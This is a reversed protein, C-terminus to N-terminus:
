AATGRDNLAVHLGVWQGRRLAAILIAVTAASCVAVAIISGEAGFQGGSLTDPGTFTTAFVGKFPNGSVLSGFIGGEAFNWGFHLGIPLWLNRTALYCAGLLFGAEITVDAASALTAGPNGLHVAGFLLSSVVLATLSGFAEELVRYIAGRFILEEGVGSVVAMILTPTLSASADFGGVHAIGIAALVGIVLSFLGIGIAAGAILNVPARSPALEKVARHEMLRTALWYVLLLILPLAIYAALVADARYAEPIKPLVKIFVRPAGVYFGLTLGSLIFLRAIRNDFLKRMIIM